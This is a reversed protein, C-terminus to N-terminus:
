DVIIPGNNSCDKPGGNGIGKGCNGSVGKAGFLIETASRNSAVVFEHMMMHDEHSLMHCHWVYRGPFKFIMVISTRTGPYSIVIDKPGAEHPEPAGFNKPFQRFTGTPTQFTTYSLGVDERYLIRFELQHLHIAHADNSLNVLEWITPQNQIPHETIPDDFMTGFPKERPGLLPLPRGASFSLAESLQQTRETIWLQRRNIKTELINECVVDPKSANKLLTHILDDDQEWEPLSTGAPDETHNHVCFKMFQDDLGHVVPGLLTIESNFLYYPETDSTNPFIVALEYREGPAIIIEDQVVTKPLLGQDSGIVTFDLRDSADYEQAIFLRLYRSDCANLLRFRYLETANVELYPYIMGNVTMIYGFMEPLVSFPPLVGGDGDIIGTPFYLPARRDEPLSEDYLFEKDNFAMGLDHDGGVPPLLHTRNDSPDVIIYLAALGAYVNLRTIGKAHDHFFLTAASQNNPYRNYGQFVTEDFENVGTENFRSGGDIICAAGICDTYWSEPHGDYQAEVHAGHLHVTARRESGHPSVCRCYFDDDAGEPTEPFPHEDPFTKNTCLETLLEAECILSRDIDLIHPDTGLNNHFTINVPCNKTVLITPGPYTANVDEDQAYGFIPTLERSGTANNKVGWDQTSEKLYIEKTRNPPVTSDYPDGCYDPNDMLNIAPPVPLRDKYKYREPHVYLVPREYLVPQGTAGEPSLGLALLVSTAAIHRKSKNTAPATKKNVGLSETDAEHYGTKSGKDSIRSTLRLLLFGVIAASVFLSWGWSLSSRYFPTDAEGLQLVSWDKESEDVLSLRRRRQIPPNTGLQPVSGEEESEDLLSLKRRRVIPPDIKLTYNGIPGYQQFLTSVAVINTTGVNPIRRWGRVILSLSTNGWMVQGQTILDTDLGRDVHCNIILSNDDIPPQAAPPDFEAPDPCLEGYNQVTSNIPELLGGSSCAMDLHWIEAFRNLGLGKLTLSTGNGVGEGTSARNDWFINHEFLLPHSFDWPYKTDNVVNGRNGPMSMNEYRSVTEYWISENVAYTLNDLASLLLGSMKSTALGSAFLNSRVSEISTGTVINNMIVNNHVKVFPADNLSIGGGEHLGVNHTIINNKVDYVSLYPNLFRIGGGDDGSVCGQIRNGDIVVDGAKAPLIDTDGFQGITESAIIIGGGEDVARNWLIWNKGIRGGESAGFHSIGGGYEQGNNGCIHNLEVVYGDSGGFLGIGGALNFGGNYRFNNRSITLQTNFSNGSGDLKLFPTGARVGGGYSGGNANIGNNTIRFFRTYSHLTVGGGQVAVVQPVDPADQAQAPAVPGRFIGGREQIGGTILCGDVGGTLAEDTWGTNNPGLAWTANNSLVYLVQGEVLAPNIIENGGATLSAVKNSIIDLWADRTRADCFLQPNAFPDCLIGAGFNAGDLQTGRTPEQDNATTVVERDKGPGIGQLKAPYSMILNEFHAGDPNLHKVQNPHIMIIAGREHSETAAEWADLAQQIPGGGDVTANYDAGGPALDGVRYIVPNYNGGILHISIGTFWTEETESNTLELQFMGFFSANTPM